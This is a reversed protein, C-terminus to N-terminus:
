GIVKDARYLISPPITLGLSRAAEVNAFLEFRTPREIPLQAPSEGKLIRDVYAATRRYLDPRHPGYSVLGGADVFESYGYMAPLRARAAEAVVLRRHSWTVPDDFVIMGQARQKVADRFALEIEGPDRARLSAIEVGLAQAARLTEETFVVHSSNNPNALIAVRSVQGLIEVLLQLRKPSLEPTLLTLGTVTGGPHDLSEVLGVRVPDAVAVIVIPINGAGAKAALSAPTAASVLVDVKAKVLEAVLDPLREHYGNAWRPEVVITEGEVYGHERLGQRCAAWLHEGQSPIFSFLYGIRPSRTTSRAPLSPTALFAGAAILFRRRGLLSVIGGGSM